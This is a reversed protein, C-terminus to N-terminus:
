TGIPLKNSDSSIIERQHIQSYFNLINKCGEQNESKKFLQVDYFSSLNLWGNLAKPNIESFLEPILRLLVGAFGHRELHKCIQWSDMAELLVVMVNAANVQYVIVTKLCLKLFDNIVKKETWVLDEFNSNLLHISQLIIEIVWVSKKLYFFKGKVVSSDKLFSGDSGYLNERSSVLNMIINDQSDSHGSSISSQWITDLVVLSFEKFLNSIQLSNLDQFKFNKSKLKTQTKSIFEEQLISFLLNGTAHLTEQEKGNMKFQVLFKFFYNIALKYSNILSKQNEESPRMIFNELQNVLLNNIFDRGYQNSLVKFRNELLLEKNLDNQVNNGFDSNKFSELINRMGKCNDKEENSKTEERQYFLIYANMGPKKLQDLNIEKSKSDKDKDKKKQGFGALDQMLKLKDRSLIKQPNEVSDLEINMQTNQKFYEPFYSENNEFEGFCDKPLNKEDYRTVKDDNYMIWKPICPEESQEREWNRRRLNLNIIRDAENKVSKSPCTGAKNPSDVSIQSMMSETNLTSEDPQQEKNILSIYHGYEVSGMHCIVGKLKFNDNLSETETLDKKINDVNKAIRLKERFHFGENVKVFKGNQFQFRKLHIILQKPLKSIQTRKERQSKQGCKPCEKPLEQLLEWHSFYKLSEEINGMDKIELSLVIFGEKNAIVSHGCEVFRIENIFEGKMNSNLEAQSIENEKLSDELNNLFENFFEYVDRQLKFNMESFTELFDVPIIQSKKNVLMSYILIGLEGLYEKKRNEDDVKQVFQDRKLGECNKLVFEAFWDMNVFQQILSNFYCTSSLNVLGCTVRNNKSFQGVELIKERLLDRDEIAKSDKNSIVTRFKGMLLKELMNQSEIRHQNKKFKILSSNTKSSSSTLFTKPNEAESVYQEIKLHIFEQKSPFSRLLTHILNFCIEMTSYDIKHIHNLSQIDQIQNDQGFLLNDSVLQWIFDFCDEMEQGLTEVTKNLSGMVLRLEDMNNVGRSGIEVLIDKLIRMIESKEEPYVALLLNLLQTKAILKWVNEEKEVEFTNLNLKEVTRELEVLSLKNLICDMIEQKLKYIDEQDSSDRNKLAPIFVCSFSQLFESATIVNTSLLSLCCTLYSDARGSSKFHKRQIRYILIKASGDLLIYIQKYVLVDM